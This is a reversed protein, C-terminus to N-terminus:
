SLQRRPYLHRTELRNQHKLFTVHHFLCITTDNDMLRLHNALNSSWQIKVGAFQQLNYATFEEGFKIGTSDTSSKQFYQGLMTKLSWSDDSWLLPAWGQVGYPLPGIDVMSMLRAVLRLSGEAMRIKADTPRQQTDLTLLSQTIEEKTYGDELRKAVAAIDRHKRVTTYEGRNYTIAKKCEATYYSFFADWRKLGLLFEPSTNYQWLGKIIDARISEPVPDENANRDLTM